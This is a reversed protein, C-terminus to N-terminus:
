LSVGKKEAFDVVALEVIKTLGISTEAKIKKLLEDIKPDFCFNYRKTKIRHNM